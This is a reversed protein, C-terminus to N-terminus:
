PGGRQWTIDELVKGIVPLKDIMEM